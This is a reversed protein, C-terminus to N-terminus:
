KGSYSEIERKKKAIPETQIPKEKIIGDPKYILILLMIIGFLIYELWTTEFPLHLLSKIEYKYTILLVRALVFILTGITVGINNGMGGLLVMLFPYFTWEVRFFSRANVYVSYFSYLVGAIAAIASGLAVVKIRIKMVDKGYSKVVQENERMAKLLRGFPTNLIRNVIIFVISAIILTLFVFAHMRWEGPIFALIDPVSVGYYGGIIKEDCYCVMYAVESIALLTIALYDESLKASPLIFLAGVIAGILVAILISIILLSIGIGPNQAILPNLIGKVEGSATTIRGHLNYVKMLIRNIVGGVAFAGILVGLAKGFNPIGAYGYEINLSLVVILYLGFWFAINLILYEASM